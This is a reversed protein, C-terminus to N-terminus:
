RLSVSSSWNEPEVILTPDGRIILRRSDVAGRFGFVEEVWSGPTIDLTKASNDETWKISALRGDKLSLECSWVAGKSDCSKFLAGLMWTHVRRYAQLERERVAGNPQEFGLRDHDWSYWYFRSVGSAWNLIMWRAVHSAASAASSDAYKPVGIAHGSETDWLPKADAGFERLLDKVAAILKLKDEPQGSDTYFHYGIIDCHRAGGAALFRRFWALSEHKAPSPCVIQAAPDIMGVEEDVIRTMEVMQEVTGSFMGSSAPENWVEYLRIKGVYGAALRRVFRAFDAMNEPPAAEGPGYFSKQKPKSSAWAPTRGITFLVEYGHKSAVSLALDLRKFNWTNVEPQLQSWGVGADWLRWTGFPAQPQMAPDHFRHNHIGFYVAPVAQDPPFLTRDGDAACASMAAMAVLAM